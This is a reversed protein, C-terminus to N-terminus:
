MCLFDHRRNENVLMKGKLYNERTDHGHRLIRGESMFDYNKRVCVGKRVEAPGKGNCLFQSVSTELHNKSALAAVLQRVPASM